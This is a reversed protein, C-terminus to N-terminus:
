RLKDFILNKIGVKKRECYLKYVMQTPMYILDIDNLNEKKLFGISVTGFSTVKGSDRPFLLINKFKKNKVYEKFAMQYLYQKTIDEVGPQGSFNDSDLKISYYKADLIIFHDETECIIDPVLTKASYKKGSISEWIPRDLLNKVKDFKNDLVFGCVREWIVHFSRTGYFAIKVDTNEKYDKKVFALMAKLINQKNTIFQVDLEKQIKYEVDKLDDFNYKDDDYELFVYEFGLIELLGFNSLIKISKNIVYKNLNKFYNNQQEEMETTYFDLYFVDEDIIIPQLDDITKTWNIEGEGNLLNIENDNLYLGYEFYFELIYILLAIINGEFDNEGFSKLEEEDLNENIKYIKFLKLIELAKSPANEKLIYKPMVFISIKDIIVIGVFKFSYLNKEKKLIRRTILDNLNKKNLHLDQYIFKETYKKNEKVYLM